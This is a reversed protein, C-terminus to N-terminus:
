DLEGFLKLEVRLLDGIISQLPNRLDHGVMGATQGIAAMRENDQSHKELAIRQTINEFIVGVQNGGAKWAHVDYFRGSVGSKIETHVAQGTKEVKNFIELWYSEIPGLLESARKGVVQEINKGISKLFAPNSDCYIFDVVKENDYHLLEAVFFMETMTSFLQRYRMESEKLADQTSKRETIDEHLIAINTVEDYENKLPYIITSLWRKRGLGKTSPDLSADYELDPVEVIEGAYARQIYPVWGNQIVQESQLVNYKGFLSNEQSEGCNIGLPTLRFRFVTKTM